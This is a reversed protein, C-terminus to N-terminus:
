LIQAWQQPERRFTRFDKIILLRTRPDIFPLARELLRDLSHGGYRRRIDGGTAIRNFGRRYLLVAAMASPLYCFLGTICLLSLVNLAQPLEGRGAARLGAGVWHNPMVAGRAFSFRGLLQHVAERDGYSDKIARTTRVSDYIIGGVLLAIGILLAAV